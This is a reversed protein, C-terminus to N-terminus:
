GKYLASAGGTSRTGTSAPCLGETFWTGKQTVKRGSEKPKHEM